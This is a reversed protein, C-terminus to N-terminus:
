RRPVTGLNGKRVSILMAEAINLLWRSVWETMQCNNGGQDRERQFLAVCEVIAEGAYFAENIPVGARVALLPQSEGQAGFIGFEHYGTVYGIEARSNETDMVKTTFRKIISKSECVFARGAAFM